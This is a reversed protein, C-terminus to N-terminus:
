FFRVVHDNEIKAWERAERAFREVLDADARFEPRLCKIAVIEGLEGHKAAVVFAMGGTGVRRVVEYKDAIRDGENFPLSKPDFELKAGSHAFTKDAGVSTM